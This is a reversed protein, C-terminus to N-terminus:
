KVGRRQCLLTDPSSSAGHVYFLREEVEGDGEGPKLKYEM